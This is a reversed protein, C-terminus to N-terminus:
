SGVNWKHITMLSFKKCINIIFSKSNMKYQGPRLLNVEKDEMGDYIKCGSDCEDVPIM